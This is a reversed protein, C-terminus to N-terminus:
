LSEIIEEYRRALSEMTWEEYFSQLSKTGNNLIERLSSSEIRITPEASFLHRFMHSSSIAIPRHVALAYDPSGAVGQHEGMGDYFYAIMTNESLWDLYANLPLFDHTAELTVGPKTIIELCERVRAQSSHGENDGYFSHPLHLRIKAEDFEKQITEVLWCFGKHGAGFGATGITFENPPPKPIYDPIARNTIFANPDNGVSEKALPSPDPFILKDFIHTSSDPKLNEDWYMFLDHIIAMTIANTQICIDRYLWGGMAPPVWNFIIVRPSYAQTLSFLDEPTGVNGYIVNFKTIYTKLGNVIYDGYQYIGCRETGIPPNLFLVNDM